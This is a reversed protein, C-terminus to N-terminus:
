KEQVSEFLKEKTVVEIKDGDKLTRSVASYPGDIVEEGEKLGSLIEIYNNDQIGTKVTRQVSKGNLVIFVCETIVIDKSVAKTNDIKKVNGDDEKNMKKDNEKVISEDRTTVSQIPVSMVSPSKKTRIEVTASMGPRFPSTNDKLLETYSEKLIRIKVSFNTVQDTGVGTTNASSAVETVVGRFKKENFADIDIIATDGKTVRVIDNESVDANVEMDNLNAIIMMETGAMQSTGVVREGKEVNLKSVIGDVPSMLITKSLNDKAEKLSAESSKVSFEAANVNQKLAEVDAKATQYASLAIEYDSESIASADHLKKNRNYSLEAKNFESEAQSLRARSTALNAMSTNLSAALRDYNAQYIDPKIKALLDGKKVSDGEAVHLETIEGSVDPSIKVEIEPQVKGDASVTEIIDRRSVKDISVKIGSESKFWGLKMGILSIIALAIASFIIGRVLKKRKM